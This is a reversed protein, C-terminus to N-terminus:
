QWIRRYKSTPKFHPEATRWGNGLECLRQYDREPKIDLQKATSPDLYLDQYYLVISETHDRALKEDYLDQQIGIAISDLFNLIMVVDHQYHDPNRTFDGNAQALRLTRVCREIIPDSEYRNCAALTREMKSENRIVVIQRWGVVVLLLTAGATAWDM